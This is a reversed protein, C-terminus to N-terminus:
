RTSTELQYFILIQIELLSRLLLGFDHVSQEQPDRFLRV